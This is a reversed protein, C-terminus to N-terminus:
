RCIRCFIAAGSSPDKINMVRRHAIFDHHGQSKSDTLHAFCDFDLTGPLLRQFPQSSIAKQIWHHQYQVELGAAPCHFEESSPEATSHQLLLSMLSRSKRPSVLCLRRMMKFRRMLKRSKWGERSTDHRNRHDQADWVLCSALLHLLDDPDISWQWRLNPTINAGDQRGMQLSNVFRSVIARRGPRPQRGSNSLSEHRLNRQVEGSQSTCQISLPQLAPNTHIHLADRFWRATTFPPHDRKIGAKVLVLTESHIWLPGLPGYGASGVERKNKKKPSQLRWYEPQETSCDSHAVPVIMGFETFTIKKHMCRPGSKPGLQPENTQKNKHRLDSIICSTVFSYSSNM